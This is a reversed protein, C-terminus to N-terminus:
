EDEVVENIYLLYPRDAGLELFGDQSFEVNLHFMNSVQVNPIDLFIKLYQESIIFELAPCSCLEERLMSIIAYINQLHSCTSAKMISDDLGEFTVFIKDNFCTIYSISLITDLSDITLIDPRRIIYDEDFSLVMQSSKVSIEVINNELQSNLESLAHFAKKLM